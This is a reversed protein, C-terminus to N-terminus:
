ARDFSGTLVLVPASTVKLRRLDFPVHFRTVFSCKRCVRLLELSSDILLSLTHRVNIATRHHHTPGLTSAACCVTSSTGPASNTAPAFRVAFFTLASP